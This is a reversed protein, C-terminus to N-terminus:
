LSTLYRKLTNDQLGFVKELKALEELDPLTYGLEWSKIETESIGMKESLLQRNWRRSIRLEKLRFRLDSNVKQRKKMSLLAHEAKLQALRNELAINQAVFHDITNVIRVFLEPSLLVSGGPNGQFIEPHAASLRLKKLDDDSIILESTLAM